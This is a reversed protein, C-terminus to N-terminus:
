NYVIERAIVTQVFLTDTLLDFSIENVLYLIGYPDILLWVDSALRKNSRDIM